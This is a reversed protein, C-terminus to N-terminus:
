HDLIGSKILNHLPLFTQRKKLESLTLWIWKECKNPELNKIKAMEKETIDCEMFITIYHLQDVKMIDNTIHILRIRKSHIRLGTEEETERAACREWSEGYDLHGGPLAVKGAGHSGKRVGVLLKGEPSRLVVGVGVKPSRFMTELEPFTHMADTKAVYSKIASRLPKNSSKLTKRLLKKGDQVNEVFANFEKEARTRKRTKSQVM